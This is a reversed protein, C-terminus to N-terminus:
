RSFMHIWLAVCICTGITGIIRTGLRRKAIYGEPDESRAVRLGSSRTFFATEWWMLRIAREPSVASLLFRMFMLLIIVFLIVDGM